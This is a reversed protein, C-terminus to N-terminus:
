RDPGEIPIRWLRGTADGALLCPGNVDGVDIGMLDCGLPPSRWEPQLLPEGTTTDLQPVHMFGDFNGFEVETRGDGDFDGIRLTDFSGPSVGQGLFGGLGGFGGGDLTLLPAARADPHARADLAIQQLGHSRPVSSPLAFTHRYPNPYPTVPGRPKWPPNSPANTHSSAILREVEKGDLFTGLDNPFGEDGHGELQVARFNPFLNPIRHRILGLAAALAQRRRRSSRSTM